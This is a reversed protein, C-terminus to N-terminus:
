HIAARDSRLYPREHWAPSSSTITTPTTTTPLCSWTSSAPAPWSASRGQSPAARPPPHGLLSPTAWAKGYDLGRRSRQRRLHSAPSASPSASPTNSPHGTGRVSRRCASSFTRPRRARAPLPRGRRSVALSCDIVLPPPSALDVSAASGTIRRHRHRRSAARYSIGRRRARRHLSRRSATAAPSHLGLCVLARAGRAHPSRRVASEPNRRPELFAGM